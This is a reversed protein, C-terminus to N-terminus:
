FTNKKLNKPPPGLSDRFFIQRGLFDFFCLPGAQENKLFHCKQAGKLPDFGFNKEVYPGGGFIALFLILSALKELILDLVRACFWKGNGGTLELIEIQRTTDKIHRFLSM